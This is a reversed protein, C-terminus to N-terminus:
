CLYDITDREGDRTIALTEDWLPHLFPHYVRPRHCFQCPLGPQEADKRGRQKSSGNEIMPGTGKQRM